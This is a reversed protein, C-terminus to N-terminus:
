DIVDAPWVSPRVAPRVSEREAYGGHGRAEAGRCDNGSERGWPLMAALGSAFSAHGFRLPLDDDSGLAM